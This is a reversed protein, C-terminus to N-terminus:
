NGRAVAVLQERFWKIVQEDKNKIHWYLRMAYSEMPVPTEFQSIQFQQSIANIFRRPATFIADSKEVIYPATLFNAVKYQVTRSLGLANLADDVM